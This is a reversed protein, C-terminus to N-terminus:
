DLNLRQQSTKGSQLDQDHRNLYNSVTIDALLRLFKLIEAAQEITVDMGKKELMERAEEPQLKKM